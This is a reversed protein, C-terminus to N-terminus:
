DTWGLWKNMEDLPIPDSGIIKVEDTRDGPRPLKFLRGDTVGTRNGSLQSLQVVAEFTSAQIQFTPDSWCWDPNLARM